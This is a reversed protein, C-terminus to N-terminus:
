PPGLHSFPDPEDATGKSARLVDLRPMPTGASPDTHVDLVFPQGSELAKLGEQLRDRLEDLRTVCAGPIGFPAALGSFSILPDDLRLYWADGSPQWHYVEEVLQLGQQLTKYERNNTVVYLIPLGLKRITWWSHPYFLASGDGVVNVVTRSSGAGLKLGISAPMSFGLSGGESCFYSTPDEYHLFAQFAAADSIAENALMLPATMEERQLWGLALAVDKGTIPSDGPRGAAAEAYQRLDRDRQDALRRLQENRAAAAAQDRGPHAAVTDVILPLTAAIDGLVAAEGFGNKGIEWEDDHLYVQIVDLPILPGDAYRFVLVPAQSNFGCLFAVDHDAFASRMGAQSTPLEGQWQHMERPFNMYSSLTENYVPAGLLTALRGLPQWAGAAGVGDGAVIVPSRAHALREAAQRVAERDGTFHQGIRTVRPPGDHVQALTFDWPISVFVPRMPPTLAEKFARQMVIPLEDPFRVEYAWKAYQRAVQVLDSALLPEHLLLENHQQACLIVLPIHSKCANFLNGIGHAAGPTVHLEVVGPKGSARAYGMAAGVAINEHLCPVYRVDNSAVSTGDIMPIENTGPVGFMYRVGLDRLYDFVIDRGLKM